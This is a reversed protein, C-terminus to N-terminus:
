KFLGFFFFFRNRCLFVADDWTCRNGFPDLPTLGVVARQSLSCAEVRVSETERGLAHSLGECYLRNSYGEFWATLPIFRVYRM